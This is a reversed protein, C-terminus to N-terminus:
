LAERLAVEMRNDSECLGCLMTYTPEPCGKDSCCFTELGSCVQHVSWLPRSEVEAIAKLWLTQEIQNMSNPRVYKMREGFQRARNPIWGSESTGLYQKFDRSINM